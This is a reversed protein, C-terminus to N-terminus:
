VIYSPLIEDGIYGVYGLGVVLPGKEMNKGMKGRLCFRGLNMDAKAANGGEM